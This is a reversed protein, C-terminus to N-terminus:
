GEVYSKYERPLPTTAGAPLQGVNAFSWNFKAMQSNYEASLSNYSAKVGAAESRWISLQERDSRQWDKRKEGQYDAKLDKVRQNYVEIDAKKKDLQASVDKFWEYKKLMASASFEQKVVKAADTFWGLFYGTTGIFTGFVFVTIVVAFVIQLTQMPGKEAHKELSDWSKM